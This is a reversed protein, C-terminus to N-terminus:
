RRLKAAFRAPSRLFNWSYLLTMRSREHYILGIFSHQITVAASSAEGKDAASQGWHRPGFRLPMEESFTLATHGAPPGLTSHRADTPVPKEEM